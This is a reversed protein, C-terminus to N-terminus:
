SKRWSVAKEEHRKIWNCNACLLQYNNEKDALVKSYFATSASQYQKREKYGNNRVHDIQLVRFDTNGCKACKNGLFNLVEQRKTARRTKTKEECTKCVVKGDNNPPTKRCSTCVGKTKSNLYRTM